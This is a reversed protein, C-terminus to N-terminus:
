EGNRSGSLLSWGISVLATIGLGALLIPNPGTPSTVGGVPDSPDTSRVSGSQVRTTHNVSGKPTCCEDGGQSEVTTNYTGPASADVSTWAWGDDDALAYGLSEATVINRSVGGDEAPPTFRVSFVVSHNLGGESYKSRFAGSTDSAKLGIKIRTVGDDGVEDIIRIRHKTACQSEFIWASGPDCELTRDTM